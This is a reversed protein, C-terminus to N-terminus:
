EASPRIDKINLQMGRTDNFDNWEFGFAIDIRPPLTGNWEKGLRFAVGERVVNNQMLTMRLHEGNGVTRASRVTVARASFLAAPNAMGFPEMLELLYLLPRDLDCFSVDADIRLTPALELGSLRQAAIRNLRERLEPLRATPVSFGAAAAHGGYKSLIDRCEDLAEVINFEPISRASGKSVDDIVSIVLAPRYFEDVLRSAALGVVGQPYDTDHVFILPAERQEALITARAHAVCRKTKEQRERNAEELRTALSEAQVKDTCLLLDLAIQAHEMRGAANLRPGLAFGIASADVKGPKIGAKLILERVGIRISNNLLGLGRRVLVRNEGQLPM